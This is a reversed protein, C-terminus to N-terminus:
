RRAERISESMTQPPAKWLFLTVLPPGFAVAALLLWGRISTINAVFGAVGMALIWAAALARKTPEHQM